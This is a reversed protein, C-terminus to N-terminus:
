PSRASRRSRSPRRREGRADLLRRLARADVELALVAAHEDPAAAFAQLRQLVEHRGREALLEAVVVADDDVAVAEALVLVGLQPLHRPEHRLLRADDPAGCSIPGSLGYSRRMTCMAIASSGPAVESLMPSANMFVTIMECDLLLHCDRGMNEVSSVMTAM